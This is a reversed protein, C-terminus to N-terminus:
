APCDIGAPPNGLELGIAEQEVLTTPTAAPKNASSGSGSTSWSGANAGSTAGSGAGAASGSSGGSAKVTTTPATSNAAPANVGPVKLEGGLVVVIRGDTLSPDIVMTPQPDVKSAVVMAERAFTENYRITTHEVPEGNDVTGVVFGVKALADAGSRAVGAVGSGNLVDVTVNEPKIAAWAVQDPTQMPADGTFIDIVPQSRGEVLMEVLAGGNTRKSETTLRHVAMGSANFNSFQGALGRIDNVGLKDDLVLHNKAVGILDTLTAVNNLGLGSLKSLARRMFIQQRTSRGLDGTPESIWKVGNSYMLHRSRAFALAQHGDLTYCGKKKINLGSNEDYVPRDFYMGIGGVADVLGRFGDFNVEIYHHIPIGLEDNISDILGQPGGSYASNIRRHGGKGDSVWLDRPVTLMEIQSIEPDVRAIMITDARQGGPADKTNGGDVTQDLERTDSGVLLFNLPDQKAAAALDVDAREIGRFQMYAWAIGSGALLAVIVLM